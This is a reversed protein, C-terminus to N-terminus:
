QRYAFSWSLFISRTHLHKVVFFHSITRESSLPEDHLIVFRLPCEGDIVNKSDKGNMDNKHVKDNNHNGGPQRLHLHHKRDTFFCCNWSQWELESRLKEDLPTKGEENRSRSYGPIWLIGTWGHNWHSEQYEEDAHWRHLTFRYKREHAGQYQTTKGELPRTTMTRKAFLTKIKRTQESSPMLCVGRTCCLTGEKQGNKLFTPANFHKPFREWSTCSLM